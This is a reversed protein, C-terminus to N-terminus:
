RFEQTNWGKELVFLRPTHRDAHFIQQKLYKSTSRNIFDVDIDNTFREILQASHLDVGKAVQHM